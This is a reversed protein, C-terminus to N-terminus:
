LCSAPPGEGRRRWKTVGDKIPNLEDEVNEKMKKLSGGCRAM